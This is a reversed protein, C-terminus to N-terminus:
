KIAAIEGLNKLQKLFNSFNPILLEHVQRVGTSMGKVLSDPTPYDIQIDPHVIKSFFLGVTQMKSGTAACVIREFLGHKLYIDEITNFSEQYHLTSTARKLLGDKRLPNDLSHELWYKKHIYQTAEERWKYDDRPPHGNILLLRHPTM